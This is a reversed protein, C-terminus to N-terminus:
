ESVKCEDFDFELQRNLALDIAGIKLLRTKCINALSNLKAKSVKPETLFGSTAICTLNDFKLKMQEALFNGLKYLGLLNGYARSILYQNAYLAVMNLTKSKSDISFSVQQLCPFGHRKSAVIDRTPDFVVLPFSDDQEFLDDTPNVVNIQLASSRTIGKKYQKIIEYLQNIVKQNDIKNDLGKNQYNIFRYFYTGYINAKTKRIKPFIKLYRKYLDNPIEEQPLSKNLLTFPFITEAVTNTNYDFGLNSLENDLANKIEIDEANFEKLNKLNKVRIICPSIPGINHNMAHLLANAWAHSINNSEVFIM